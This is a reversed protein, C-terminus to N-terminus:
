IINIFIALTAVLREEDILGQQYQFCSLDAHRAVTIAYNGFINIDEQNTLEETQALFYVDRLKEVSLISMNIDIIQSILDQYAATEIARTNLATEESSQRTELGVFILGAIVALASIIEAIFAFEQLKEKMM